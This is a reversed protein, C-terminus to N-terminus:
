DDTPPAKDPAPANTTPAADSDLAAAATVLQTRQDDLANRTPHGHGDLQAYALRLVELLRAYADDLRQRAAQPDPRTAGEGQRAREVLARYADRGLLWLKVASTAIELMRDLDRLDLMMRLHTHRQDVRAMYGDFGVTATPRGPPPTRESDSM